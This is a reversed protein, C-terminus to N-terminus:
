KKEEFIDFTFDLYIIVSYLMFNTAGFGVGTGVTNNVYNEDSVFSIGLGIISGVVAGDLFPKPNLLSTLYTKLSNKFGIKSIDGKYVSSYPTIQYREDYKELFAELM